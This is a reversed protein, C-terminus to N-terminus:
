YQDNLRNDELRNNIEVIIIVLLIDREINKAGIIINRCLKRLNML